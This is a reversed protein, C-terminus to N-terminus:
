PKLCGIPVVWVGDHREAGERREVGDSGKGGSKELIEPRKAGLVVMFCNQGRNKASPPVLVAQSCNEGGIKASKAEPLAASCNEGRNKASQNEM